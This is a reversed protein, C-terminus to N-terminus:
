RFAGTGYLGVTMNQTVVFTCPAHAGADPPAASPPDYTCFEETYVQQGGIGLSVKTGADFAHSCETAVQTPDPLPCPVGGGGSGAHSCDGCLIGSPNSGAVGVSNMVVTVTFPGTQAADPDAQSSCSILTILILGLGFRLM